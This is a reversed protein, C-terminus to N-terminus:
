AYARLKLEAPSPSLYHQGRLYPQDYKRTYHRLLTVPVLLPALGDHYQAILELLEAKEDKDLQTKFYGMAHQLTNTHKKVTAKLKLTAMLGELYQPFLKDPGLAKGDGVLAGLRKLGVTSHAMLALKHRAHFDSLAAVSKGQDLMELWRAMTFVRELFNDRLVSDNLRGEDEVPLLPFREMFARAFLGPGRNSPMGEPTYIKADLMASSPSSKKFVFGCLGERELRDLTPGLWALMRATLDVGSRVTLLRPCAPDGVLRMAERPVGLGCGVEPCVPVYTVFPGLSDRLYRDLKGQGDYRVNEGLLCSSIGLKIARPEM